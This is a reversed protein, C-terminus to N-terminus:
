SIFVSLCIDESRKASIGQFCLEPNESKFDQELKDKENGRGSEGVAGPLPFITVVLSWTCPPSGPEAAEPTQPPVTM